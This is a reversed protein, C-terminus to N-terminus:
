RNATSDFIKLGGNDSVRPRGLAYVANGGGHEAVLVSIGRDSLPRKKGTAPSGRLIDRRDPCEERSM